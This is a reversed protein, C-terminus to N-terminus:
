IAPPPPSTRRRPPPRRLGPVVGARQHRRAAAARGARLPCGRDVTEFKDRVAELDDDTAKSNRIADLHDAIALGDLKCPECQGCSEVALFRAAAHAAAVPDVEDDLVIFGAAGLGSGIAAMEEYAAPTDFQAAPVFANAVGSIAAVLTRGERAGGGIEDIIATLPTGMPM